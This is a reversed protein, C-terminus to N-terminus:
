SVAFNAGQICRFCCCLIAIDAIHGFLTLSSVIFRTFQKSSQVYRYKMKQQNDGQVASGTPSHDGVASHGLRARQDAFSQNEAGNSGPTSLRSRKHLGRSEQHSAVPPNEEMDWSVHNGNVYFRRYFQSDYLSNNRLRFIHSNPHLPEQEKSNLFGGFACIAAEVRRTAVKVEAEDPRSREKEIFYISLPFTHPNPQM